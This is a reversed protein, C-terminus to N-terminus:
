RSSLSSPSSAPSCRLLSPVPGVVERRLRGAGAALALGRGGACRRAPRPPGPCGRRPERPRPSRRLGCRSGLAPQACLGLAVLGLRHAMRRPLSWCCGVRRGVRALRSRPAATTPISRASLLALSGPVLLAGGVGQLARAVVLVGITPAVACLLSAASFGALGVLFVRRRGYKDGLAGGLLMGVTLTVLYGDLVWQRGPSTQTSIRPSPRCRSTSSPATSSCWVRVWCRHGCCGGRLPHAGVFPAPPWRACAVPLAAFSSGPAVGISQRYGTQAGASAPPNGRAAAGSAAM